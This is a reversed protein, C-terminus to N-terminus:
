SLVHETERWAPPRREIRAKVFLKLAELTALCNILNAWVIPLPAAAAFRAGYVRACLHLHLGAEFAAIGTSILCLDSLWNAAPFAVLAPLLAFGATLSALWGVLLLGALPAILNAALGKRDRWFWYRQRGSSRWGHREWGQLAIKGCGV